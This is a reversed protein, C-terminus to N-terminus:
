VYDAPEKRVLAVKAGKKLPLVHSDNKLLVMGESAASRSLELHEKSATVRRGDRGLPLVPTYRLRNWHSAM